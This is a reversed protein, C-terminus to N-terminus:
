IKVIVVQIHDFPFNGKSSKSAKKSDKDAKKKAKEDEKSMIKSKDVGSGGWNLQDGLDAASMQTLLNDSATETVDMLPPYIDPDLKGQHEVM